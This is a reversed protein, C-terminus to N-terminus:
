QGHNPVQAIRGVQRAHLFAVVPELVELALGVLVHDLQELSEVLRVGIRHTDNGQLIEIVQELLDDIAATVGAIDDHLDWM